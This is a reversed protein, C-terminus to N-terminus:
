RTQRHREDSNSLVSRIPNNDNGAPAPIEGSVYFPWRESIDGVRTDFLGREYLVEAAASIIQPKRLHEVKPRPSM